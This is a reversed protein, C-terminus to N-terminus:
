EFMGTSFYLRSVRCVADGIEAADGDDTNVAPQFLPTPPLTLFFSTPNLVFLGHSTFSLNSPSWSVGSKVVLM